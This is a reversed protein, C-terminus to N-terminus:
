VIDTCIGSMALFSIFGLHFKSLKDIPSLPEMPIWGICAKFTKLKIYRPDFKKEACYILFWLIEGEDLKLENEYILKKFVYNKNFSM